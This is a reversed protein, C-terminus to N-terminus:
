WDREEFGENGKNEIRKIILYIIFGICAIIGTFYLLIILTGIM